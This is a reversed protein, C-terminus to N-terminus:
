KDFENNEVEEKNNELAREESVEGPAEEVPAEESSAEEPAVEVPAEESSVEEPAVKVKAEKPPAEEFSSRNDLIQSENITSILYALVNSNHELEKLINSNKQGNSSFQTLIYNGYSQKEILYALKKKGWNDFALLNGGNKKILEDISKIIDQLHGGELAPHVVYLIEYYKM